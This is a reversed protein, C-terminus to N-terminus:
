EAFTQAMDSSWEDWIRGVEAFYKDGYPVLLDAQDPAVCGGLTARFVATPREGSVILEWAAAKAEASPIAAKCGAAHREGAATRDREHEADIEAEGAQGTVVLRRLLTWRLDTDVTLGDLAQSGDLLGQVFEL